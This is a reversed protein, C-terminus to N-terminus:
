KIKVIKVKSGQGKGKLLSKYTKLKKEPVKIKAKSNIGKFAAKGVTKLKTSNITITKLKKCGSFAYDGITKINAGITVNKIKKNAKLANDAIETVKFTAGGYRVTKPISVSTASKSSIGTFAVTAKAANTIKYTYGKVRFTIGKKAKIEFEKTIKGSYNGIGTIVVSATGINKNNKYTVTYDTGKKLKKGNLTITISPKKSKGNYTYKTTSLNIETNGISVKEDESVAFPASRVYSFTEALDSKSITSGWKIICHGDTNCDTYTVTDGDVATIYISHSNNRYRVIDGPKLNDLASVDRDTVWGNANIRPNYGTADYGLKEAYGMCQWSLQIDDPQFGNCTQQDTGIVGHKECPTSTYGDQNNVSNSAGANEAHNWYKGNPFKEKLETLTLTNRTENGDSDNSVTTDTYNLKLSEAAYINSPLQSFSLIATMVIALLRKFM